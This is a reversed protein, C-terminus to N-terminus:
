LSSNHMSRIERPRRSTVHEATVRMIFEMMFAIILYEMDDMLGQLRLVSM